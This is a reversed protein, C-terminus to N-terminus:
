NLAARRTVPQYFNFTIPWEIKAFSSTKARKRSFQRPSSSHDAKKSTPILKMEDFGCSLVILHCFERKSPVFKNRHNQKPLAPHIKNRERLCVLSLNEEKWRPWESLGAQLLRSKRPNNKWPFGHYPKPIWVQLTFVIKKKKKKKQVFNVFTASIIYGHILLSIQRKIMINDLRTSVTRLRTNWGFEYKQSYLQFPPTRIGSAKNLNNQFHINSYERESAVKIKAWANQM